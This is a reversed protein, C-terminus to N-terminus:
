QDNCFPYVPVELVLLDTDTQTSQDVREVMLPRWDVISSVRVLLIQLKRVEGLCFDVKENLETLSM